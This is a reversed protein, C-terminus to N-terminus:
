ADYEVELERNNDIADQVIDFLKNVTPWSDPWDAPPPDLAVLRTVAVVTDRHVTVQVLGLNEGPCFCSRAFDATYDSLAAARWRARHVLLEYQAGGRSPATSSCSALVTAAAIALLSVRRM